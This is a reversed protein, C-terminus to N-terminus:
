TCFRFSHEHVTYRRETGESNLVGVGKSVSFIGLQELLRRQNASALDARTCGARACFWGEEALSVEVRGGSRLTRRIEACIRHNTAQSKGPNRYQYFRRKLNETEGIYLVRDDKVYLEIRYIGPEGRAEPFQLRDGFDLVVAGIKRWRL